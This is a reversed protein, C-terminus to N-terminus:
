QWRTIGVSARFNQELNMLVLTATVILLVHIARGSSGLQIQNDLAEVVLGDRMVLGAILSCGAVSLILWSSQRLAAAGSTRAFTCGFVLWCPLALSLSSLQWQEAFLLTQPAMIGRASILAEVAFLLMGTGFSIGALSRECAALGRLGASAALIVAALRILM